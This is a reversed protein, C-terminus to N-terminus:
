RQHEVIYADFAYRLKCVFHDFYSVVSSWQELLETLPFLLHPFTVFIYWSYINWFFRTKRQCSFFQSACIWSTLAPYIRKFKLHSDILLTKEASSSTLTIDRTVVIKFCHLRRHRWEIPDMQWGWSRQGCAIESVVSECFQDLHLVPKQSVTNSRTHDLCSVTLYLIKFM